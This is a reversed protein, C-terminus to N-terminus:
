PSKRAYKDFTAAVTLPDASQTALISKAGNARKILTDHMEAPILHLVDGLAGPSLADTHGLALLTLVTAKPDAWMKRGQAVKVVLGAAGADAMKSVREEIDEWFAKFASRVSWLAVIEAETMDHVMSTNVHASLATKAANHVASCRGHRAAKCYRCHDGPVPTVNTGAYAAEVARAEILLKSHEARLREAELLLLQGPEGHIRRPQYIALGVDRVQLGFSEAAAVAYGAVQENPADLTGVDVEGFGFKYDVVILRAISPIWILCDATGFLPPTIGKVDVRRELVIGADPFSGILTGIFEAYDRGHLRMKANWQSVPQGKLDLGEPPAYELPVGPRAGELGFRQRVFFEAIAHAITGEEAAPGSEDPLGESWPVSVACRSWRSRASMSLKSHVAQAESM